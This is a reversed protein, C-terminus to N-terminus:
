SAARRSTREARRPTRIIRRLAPMVQDNFVAYQEAILEQAAAPAGGNLLDMAVWGLLGATAAIWRKM